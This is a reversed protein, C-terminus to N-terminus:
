NNDTVAQNDRFDIDLRPDMIIAYGPISTDDAAYHIANNSFADIELQVSNQSSTTGTANVGLANVRFYAVESEELQFDDTSASTNFIM